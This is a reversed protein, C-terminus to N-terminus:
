RAFANLTSVIYEATKIPSVNNHFYEYNQQGLNERLDAPANILSKVADVIEDPTKCNFQKNYNPISKAFRNDLIIEQGAIPMGLALYQGLKFSLCDHLGRVYIAVKSQAYYKLLEKLSMFQTAYESYPAPVTESSAFAAIGNMSTDARLKKVLELRFANDEKHDRHPYYTVLFVFDRIKPLKRVKDLYSLPMMTRYATFANDAVGMIKETLNNGEVHATLVKLSSEPRISFPYPLDVIKNSFYSVFTDENNLMRSINTKFYVDVVPLLEMFHPKSKDAVDIVALVEKNNVQCKVIISNLLSEEGVEKIIKSVWSDRYSNAIKFEIAGTKALQQFGLVFYASYSIGCNILIDINM